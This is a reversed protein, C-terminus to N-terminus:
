GKLRDAQVIRANTHVKDVYSRRRLDHTESDIADGTPGGNYRCLARVVRESEGEHPHLAYVAQMERKFVEVGAALGFLPRYLIYYDLTARQELGILRKFTYGMVQLLGYSSDDEIRGNDVGPTDPDNRRDPRDARDQHPEYRHALPNGSSETLVLAELLEAPAFTDGKYSWAPLQEYAAVADLLARFHPMKTRLTM